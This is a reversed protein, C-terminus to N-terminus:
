YAQELKDKFNNHDRLTRKFDIKIFYLLQDEGNDM